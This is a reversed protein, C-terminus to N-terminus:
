HTMAAQPKRFMNLMYYDRSSIWAASFTLGTAQALVEAASDSYKYASEIYLRDGRKITVDEDSGCIDKVQAAIGCPWRVVVDECAELFADHRGIKEDYVGVYRFNEMDLLNNVADKSNSGSQQIVYDAVLQNIHPLINLEFKATIGLSDNYAHMIVDTPKQKDMGILIADNATMVNQSIKTFFEVADPTHLNGISSGLWLVTKPRASKGLRPLVEDYTGCLACFSINAFRPALKAMSEHLPRPM